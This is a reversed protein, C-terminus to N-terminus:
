LFQLLQLPLPGLVDTSVVHRQDPFCLWGCLDPSQGECTLSRVCLTVVRDGEALCDRSWSRVAHAFRDLCTVCLDFIILYFCIIVCKLELL